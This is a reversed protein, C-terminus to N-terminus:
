STAGDRGARAYEIALDIGAGAIAERLAAPRIDTDHDEATVTYTAVVAALRNYRRATRASAAVSEDRAREAELTKAVRDEYRTHLDDYTSRRVPM